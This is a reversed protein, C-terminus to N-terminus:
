LTARWLRDYFLNVREGDPRTIVSELALIAADGETDTRTATVAIGAAIGDAIMWALHDRAYDEARRLTEPLTKSRELLWLKGGWVGSQELADGWWGRLDTEGPEAESSSARADTLLSALALSRLGDDLLLDGNAFCLDAAGTRPDFSLALDSM